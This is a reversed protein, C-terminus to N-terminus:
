FHNKIRKGSSVFLLMTIILPPLSIILFDQINRYTHFYFTFAVTIILFIFFGYKPKNYGIWASFFIIAAPISHIFFGGIEKWTIGSQFSDLAMMWLFLGYVIGLVLGSYRFLSRM